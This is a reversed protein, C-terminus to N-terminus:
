KLKMKKLAKDKHRFISRKIRYEKIPMSRVGEVKEHLRGGLPIKDKHLGTDKM